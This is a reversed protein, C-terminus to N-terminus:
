QALRILNDATQMPEIGFYGKAEPKRVNPGRYHDEFVTMGGVHGMAEAAARYGHLKGYFTGFSHRAGNEVWGIGTEQAAKTKHRDVTAHSPAIQGTRPKGDPGTRYKVLWVMLNATIPVDRRRRGKAIAAPVNIETEDFDVHEWRLGEGYASVIESSRLGAFCGLALALAADPNSRELAHLFRKANGPTMINAPATERKRRQPFRAVNNKYTDGSRKEIFNFLSQLEVKHNRLNRRSAGTRELFDDVHGATIEGVTIQGHDLLFPALRSAKGLLTRPRCPDSGDDPSQLYALYKDYWAQVAEGAAGRGAGNHSLYYEACTFLSAKADSAALLDLSRRADHAEPGTLQMVARGEDRRAAGMMELWDRAEQETDAVKRRRRYDRNFEGVFRGSVTRRIIGDGHYKKFGKDFTPM